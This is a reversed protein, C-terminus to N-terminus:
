NQINSWRKAEGFHVTVLINDAVVLIIGNYNYYQSERCRHNLLTMLRFEKKLFVESANNLYKQLQNKARDESKCGTRQMYRQIAHNSIIFSLCRVGGEM